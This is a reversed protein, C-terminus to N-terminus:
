EGDGLGNDVHWYPGRFTSGAAVYSVKGCLETDFLRHKKVAEAETMGNVGADLAAALLRHVVVDPYRRIPSTFHTYAGM